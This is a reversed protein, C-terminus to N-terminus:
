GRKRNRPTFGDETEADSRNNSTNGNIDGNPEVPTLPTAMPLKGTSCGCRRTVVNKVIDIRYDVMQKCVPCTNGLFHMPPYIKTGAGIYDIIIDLKAEVRALAEAILTLAM